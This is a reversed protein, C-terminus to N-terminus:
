FINKALLLIYAMLFITGASMLCWFCWANLIRWQIYILGLSMVTGGAVIWSLVDLFFPYTPAFSHIIQLLGALFGVMVYFLMGLVDNHIFKFLRNYKSALVLECSGGLPCIPREAIIRKRILYSSEALGIGALTFLLVPADFMLSKAM